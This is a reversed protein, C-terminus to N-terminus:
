GGRASVFDGSGGLGGHLNVRSTHLVAAVPVSQDLGPIVNVLDTPVSVAAAVGTGSDCSIPEAALASPSRVNITMNLNDSSLVVPEAIGSSPVTASALAAATDRKVILTLGNPLVTREVPENWFPDLLKLDPFAPSSKPM